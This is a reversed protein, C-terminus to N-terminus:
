HAGGDTTRTVGVGGTVAAYVISEDDEGERIIKEISRALMTGDTGVTGEVQVLDGVRSITSRTCM